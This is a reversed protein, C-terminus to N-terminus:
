TTPRYEYYWEADALDPYFSFMKPIAGKMSTFKSGIYLKEMFIAGNKYITHDECNIKIEDGKRAIVAPATTSDNGGDIINYVKVDSIALGNNQYIVPPVSADEANDYKAIYAAVGALPQTYLNSRDTFTKVLPKDWVPNHKDDCKMVRVQFKNGIKELEIYGYFNTYTDTSPDDPLTVTKWQQVTKTQGNITVTKTGAGVKITKTVIKKKNVTGEDYVIDHYNTPSSVSVSLIAKSSSSNDKVGIKGIQRGLSDLLYLEVKGMARHYYQRNYCWIRVRYDSYEGNLWRQSVPGHWKGVVHSGFNSKGTGDLAVKLADNSSRMAGGLVGNEPTFSLTESTLPTWTSMSGCTDHMVLPEKDVGTEGTDPDVESGVYVYNGYQDTVAVKTTDKNPICTFIPYSEARGNPIIEVPNTEIPHNEYEGYGKPDSCTFTLTCKTWASTQIIREPTTIDSFHGYYTYLQDNSFIMPYEGSGFTMVLDKLEHIKQMKQTSNDAKITIDIEYKLQGYSNGLFGKGVMGPIDQVNESIEPTIPARIDNVILDLDNVADFGCFNFTLLSM